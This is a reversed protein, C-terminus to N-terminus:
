RTRVVRGRWPARGLVATRFLSWGFVSVFFAVPLPFALAPWVGFNGVRRLMWHMQAAYLLALALWPGTDGGAGLAAAALRRATSVSGAVWAVVAVLLWLPVSAAGVAFGKAFGQVMARLGDPYMRFSLSGRGALCRVPLGAEAFARALPLSELVAHAARAHGGVALYDARGAIVCPGFAARPAIGEGLATFTGMGIMAILNFLAGLREYPREMRHYPQVSLLGGRERHAGLLRALGGPELWTDADLFVLLEGRARSAGQWCAWPKGNWGDPLPESAILTAGRARAVAATADTSHDDVV